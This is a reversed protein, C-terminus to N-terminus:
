LRKGKKFPRINKAFYQGASVANFLGDALEQDIAFYEYKSGNQFVVVMHEVVNDYTVECITSSAFLRKKVRDGGLFTKNESEDNTKM